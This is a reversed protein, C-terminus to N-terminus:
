RKLVGVCQRMRASFIRVSASFSVIWCNARHHKPDCGVVVPKSLARIIEGGVSRDHESRRFHFM